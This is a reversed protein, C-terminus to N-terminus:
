PYVLYRCEKNNQIGDKNGKLNIPEDANWENQYKDISGYFRKVLKNEKNNEQYRKRNGKFIIVAGQSEVKLKYCFGQQNQNHQYKSVPNNQLSFEVSAQECM